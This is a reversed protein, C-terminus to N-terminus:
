SYHFVQLVPNMFQDSLNEQVIFVSSGKIYAFTVTHTEIVQQFLLVCVYPQNIGSVNCSSSGSIYYRIAPLKSSSIQLESLWKGFLDVM